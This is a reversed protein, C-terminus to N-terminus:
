DFVPFISESGLGCHNDHNSAIRIFGKEGWTEGYSNKVFKTLKFAGLAKM